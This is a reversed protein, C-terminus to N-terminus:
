ATEVKGSIPNRFVTPAPPQDRAPSARARTQTRQGPATGETLCRKVIAEVFKVTPVRPSARAAEDLAAVFLTEGATEYLERWMDAQVQGNLIIGHDALVKAYGGITRAATTAPARAEADVDRDSETDAETDTDTYRKTVPEDCRAEEKHQRVRYRATREKGPVAAQRAAFRTVIWDDGEPRILRAEALGRLDDILSEPTLRLTWAMDGVSPLVGEENTEGALLLVEIWRRFLRDPLRMVKPDHLTEHYLKIWYTSAM